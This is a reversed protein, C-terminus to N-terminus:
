IYNLKLIIINTNPTKLKLPWKVGWFITYKITDKYGKFNLYHFNWKIFIL